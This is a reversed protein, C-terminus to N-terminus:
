SGASRCSCGETYRDEMVWDTDNDSLNGSFHLHVDIRGPMVTKGSIDMIEYGGPIEM